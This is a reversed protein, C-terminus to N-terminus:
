VPPLGSPPKALYSSRRSLLQLANGAHEAAEMVTLRM